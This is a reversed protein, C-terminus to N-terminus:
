PLMKGLPSQPDVVKEIDYVSIPFYPFGFAYATLKYLQYFLVLAKM